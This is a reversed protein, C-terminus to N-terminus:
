EHFLIQADDSFGFDSINDREQLGNPNIIRLALRYFGDNSAMGILKLDGLAVSLFKYTQDRWAIPLFSFSAAVVLGFRLHHSGSPAELV